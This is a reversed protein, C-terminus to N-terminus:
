DINTGFSFFHKLKSKLSAKRRLEKLVDTYPIDLNFFVEGHMTPAKVPKMYDGYQTMLIENYGSPVPVEIDEFPLMLTEKYWSLERTIKKHHLSSFLVDAMQTSKIPSYVILSCMSVYSNLMGIKRVSLYDKLYKIPHRSLLSGYLANYMRSRKTELATYIRERLGNSNDPLVDAVFIDIFIGQNFNQWIDCPLIAATDSKRLQAHGRIYNKETEAAQFFYPYKFEIPAVEVLRTYDDRLMIMDIDDDWPIFGKHRIAGILTGGEAWIKLNYKKCVKLLVGLMDLQIQWVRKSLTSVTYGNRIEESLNIM